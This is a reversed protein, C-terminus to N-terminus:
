LTSGSNVNTDIVARKSIEKRDLRIRRELGQRVDDRRRTLIRALEVEAGDIGSARLIQRRVQQFRHSPDINPDNRVLRRGVQHRRQQAAVDIDAEIDIGSQLGHSPYGPGPIVAAEPSSRLGSSRSTGVTLSLPMGSYTTVLQFPRGRRGSHRVLCKAIRLLCILAASDSGSMWALAHVNPQVGAAARRLFHLRM